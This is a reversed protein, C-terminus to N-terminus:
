AAGGHTVVVTTEGPAAEAIERLAEGVRETVDAPREIGHGLDAADGGAQRRAHSEPWREAVEALTLGEWEGYSRERLRSDRTVPLGTLEALPAATQLCRRLDSSVIAVPRRAALLPAAAAAQARGQPNLPPDSHGQIRRAANWDTIGHRWLI